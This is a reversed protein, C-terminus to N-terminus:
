TQQKEKNKQLKPKQKANKAVILLEIAQKRIQTNTNKAAGIVSTLIGV